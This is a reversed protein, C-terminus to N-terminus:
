LHRGRSHIKGSTEEQRRHMSRPTESDVIDLGYERCSRVMMSLGVM